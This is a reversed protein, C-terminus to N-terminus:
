MTGLECVVYIIRGCGNADVPGKIPRVVDDHDPCWEPDGVTGEVHGLYYRDVFVENRVGITVSCVKKLTDIMGLTLKNM